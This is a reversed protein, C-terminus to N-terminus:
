VGGAAAAPPTTTVARHPLPHLVMGTVAFPVGREIDGAALARGYHGALVALAQHVLDEPTRGTQRLVALDRRAAPSRSLDVGALPDAVRRPLGAGRGGGAKEGASVQPATEGVPRDAAATAPDAAPQRGPVPLGLVELDRTVTDRSIELQEAMQRLSLAPDAVRLEAVRQRRQARASAPTM